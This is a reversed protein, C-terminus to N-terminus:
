NQLEIESGRHFSQQKEGRRRKRLLRPACRRSIISEALPACHVRTPTQTHSLRALAGYIVREDTACLAEIIIKARAHDRQAHLIYGRSKKLAHQM